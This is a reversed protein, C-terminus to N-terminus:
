LAQAAGGPPGGRRRGGPSKSTIPKDARFGDRAGPLLWTKPRMWRSYVRLTTLLTLSLPVYRDRGGKGRQIPILM